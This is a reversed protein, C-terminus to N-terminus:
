AGLRRRVRTSSSRQAGVNVVAYISLYIYIYVSMNGTYVLM